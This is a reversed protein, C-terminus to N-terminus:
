KTRKSSTWEGLMSSIFHTKEAVGLRDVARWTGRPSSNISHTIIPWHLLLMSRTIMPWYLLLLSRNIMCTIPWYVDFCCRALLSIRWLHYALIYIFATGLAELHAVRQEDDMGDLMEVMAAREAEKMTGLAATLTMQVEASMTGVLGALMTKEKRSLGDLIAVMTEAAEENGGGLDKMMTELVERTEVAMGVLVDEKTPAPKKKHEQEGADGGGGDEEDGIFNVESDAKWFLTDYDVHAVAKLLQRLHNAYDGSKATDTWIDTLEFMSHFFQEYNMSDAGKADQVWDQEAAMQAVEQSVDEMSAIHVKVNFDIYSERTLMGDEKQMDISDWFVSIIKNILADGKLNHRERIATATYMEVNGQLRLDNVVSATRERRVKGSKFLDLTEHIEAVVDENTKPMVKALLRFGEKSRQFGALKSSRRMQRQLIKQFDDFYLEGQRSAHKRFMVEAMALNANKNVKQVAHYFENRDIYGNRDTDYSNFLDIARFKVAGSGAAFLNAEKSGAGDKGFSGDRKLTSARHKLTDAGEWM